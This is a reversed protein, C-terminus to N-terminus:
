RRISNRNKSVVKIAKVVEANDSIRPALGSATKLDNVELRETLRYPYPANENPAGRPNSFITVGRPKKSNSSDDVFLGDIRVVRPM